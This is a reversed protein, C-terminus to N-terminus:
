HINYVSLVGETLIGFANKQKERDARLGRM